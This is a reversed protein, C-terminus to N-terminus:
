APVSLRFSTDRHRPPPMLAAISIPPTSPRSAGCRRAITADTMQKSREPLHLISVVSQAASSQTWAIGCSGLSTEFLCYEMEKGTAPGNQRPHFSRRRAMPPRAASAPQRM